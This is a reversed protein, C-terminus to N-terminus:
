SVSFIVNKTKKLKGDKKQRSLFMATTERKRYKKEEVKKEISILVEMFLKKHQIHKIEKFSTKWIKGNMEKNTLIKCKTQKEYYLVPPKHPTAFGGIQQIFIRLSKFIWLLCFSSKLFILLSAM